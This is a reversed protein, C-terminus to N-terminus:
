YLLTIIARVRASKKVWFISFPTGGGGLAILTLSLCKKNSSYITKFAKGLKDQPLDECWERKYIGPFYISLSAAFFNTTMGSFLVKKHSGKRCLVSPINQYKYQCKDNSKELVLCKVYAYVYM